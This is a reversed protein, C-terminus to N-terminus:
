DNRSGLADRLKETITWRFLNGAQSNLDALVGMVEDPASREAFFWDADVVYTQGGDTQDLGHVLRVFAGAPQELEVLAEGRIVKIGRQIEPEAGLLGLVAKNLLESWPEETLGLRTRDVVDRYRLGIRSYFAPKYVEELATKAEDLALRFDPWEVYDNVTLALFDKTLAIQRSRDETSFRHTIVDLGLTMPFESLVRTVETPLSLGEGREYIPYKERLREQFKVPPEAAIGLITPFTLQCIVEVLPNERFVIRQSEPFSM